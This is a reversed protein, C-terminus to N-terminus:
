HRTAIMNELADWAADKNLKYKAEDTGGQFVEKSESSISGEM